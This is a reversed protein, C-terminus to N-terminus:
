RAMPEIVQVDGKGWVTQRGVGVWHAARLWPLFEALPGAYEAEGTFGGLPHVQGTRTSRREIREWQLDCRDLRIGASREGMARFDIDLPGAGYLARLTSLRDRLRAFLIPFEPKSSVDGAAKLETPTAFRIHVRHIPDPDADLTVVCPPLAQDVVSQECGALDLQTVRELVARARHPGIGTQAVRELAARFFPLVPRVVDFVHVDFFFSGGAPITRGDLHATRFVFPRPWDALGSPRPWDALGGPGHQAALGGPVSRDTLGGPRPWDALGGPGYQAALGSPSGAGARPAFLRAYDGPAATDRLLMGFAGRLVNASKGRPFHAPAAAQFHFRFRCFEFINAMTFARGCAM